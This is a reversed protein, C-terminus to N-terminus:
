ASTATSNSAIKGQGSGSIYRHRPDEGSLIIQLPGQFIGLADM